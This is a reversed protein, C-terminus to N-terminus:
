AASKPKKPHPVPEDILERQPREKPKWGRAGRLPKRNHLDVMTGEKDVLGQRLDHFLRNVADRAQAVPSDVPEPAAEKMEYKGEANKVAVYRPETRRPEPISANDLAALYREEALARIKAVDYRCQEAVDEARAYLDQPLWEGAVPEYGSSGSFKKELASKDM